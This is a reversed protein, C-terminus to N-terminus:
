RNAPPADDGPREIGVLIFGGDEGQDYFHLRVPPISRDGPVPRVFVDLIAYRRLADRAVGREVHEAPRAGNQVLSVCVRGDGERNALVTEVREWALHEWDGYYMRSVYRAVAADWVGTQAGLDTFCLWDSSTDALPEGAVTDDTDSMRPPATLPRAVREVEFHTLPSRVRLYHELIRDRRALLTHYLEADYEPVAIEAEDLMARVHEDTFHALLRAMWAADEPQMRDFAPNPYGPEWAEPRFSAAEFYGFIPAADSRSNYYWPRPILGLTLFDEVVHSLDLYNSHGIRRTLEEIEWDSGFGDGFDLYYHRVYNVGDEEVWMALTNQERADFHNVWAALLRGGRLERRDQHPVVDNPDDCRTDQYRWPGLPRGELYLSASARLLGDARVYAADLVRQVDDETMPVEEGVANVAEAEPDMVLREAPDFWVIFNCPAFFGVAHYIRSGFVDAATARQPQLRGDFKLLYRQGRADRIVFGPNAGDPKAEIITWPGDWDIREEPCAGRRGEEPTFDGFGIRNTFWSSSPVEDFANVNVAPGAPDVAFLRTLPRFFTQDLADWAFPSYYEAPQAEVHGRDPDDWLPETLPFPRLSPGCGFASGSAAAALLVAALALPRSRPPAPPMSM